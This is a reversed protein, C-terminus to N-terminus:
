GRPGNRTRGPHAAGAGGLAVLAAVAVWVAPAAPFERLRADVQGNGIMAQRWGGGGPAM